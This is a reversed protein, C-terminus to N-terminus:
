KGGLNEVLAIELPVIAFPSYRMESYARILSKIIAVLFAIDAKTGLKKMAAIEDKTLDKEFVSELDPNLKLSLVKRLYHILDKATQVLNHGDENLAELRSTAGALDKSVVFAALEHIKKLGTRGTIREADALAINKSLSAIQDLSRNRTASVEKPRPPSSSLRRNM